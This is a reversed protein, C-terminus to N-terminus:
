SSKNGSGLDDQIIDKPLQLRQALKQIVNNFIMEIADDPLNLTDNVDVTRTTTMVAYATEGLLSAGQPHKFTIKSGEIWALVRNFKPLDERFAVRKAKVLSVSKGKGNSTDAFYVQPISYGLPLSLPPQPLTSYWDKTIANYQLAPLSFTTIYAEPVAINGEVKAMNWVQGVLNFAAAQDICLLVENESVPFSSNPFTTAMHRRIRQILQKKTYAIAM